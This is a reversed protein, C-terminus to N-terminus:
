AAPERDTEGADEPPTGRAPAKGAKEPVSPDVGPFLDTVKPLDAISALGFTELFLKSTGYLM